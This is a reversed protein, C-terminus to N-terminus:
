AAASNPLMTEALKPGRRPLRLDIRALLSVNPSQQIECAGTREGSLRHISHFLVNLWQQGAREWWSLIALLQDIEKKRFEM